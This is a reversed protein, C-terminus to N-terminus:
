NVVDIALSFEVEGTGMSLDYGNKLSYDAGLMSSFDMLDSRANNYVVARRACRFITRPQPSLDALNTIDPSVTCFANRTFRGYRVGAIRGNRSYSYDLAYDEFDAFNNGLDGSSKELKAKARLGFATNAAVFFASNMSMRSATLNTSKELRQPDISDGADLYGTDNVDDFQVDVVGDGDRDFGVFDSQGDGAATVTERSGQVVAPISAIASRQWEVAPTNEPGITLYLAADHSNHLVVCGFARCLPNDFIDDAATAVSSSFCGALCLLTVWVSRDLASALM